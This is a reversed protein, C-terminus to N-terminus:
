YQVLQLAENNKAVLVTKNKKVKLLIMDRIAGRLNIGSHQAPLATFNGRGDGKLFAGYSADYIGVEPKSQYFNGGMLIDMKGDTDFDDVAIAYVPSFQAQVPLAKRTFTGNGNNIFVSSQM